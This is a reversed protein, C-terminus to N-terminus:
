RHVGEAIPTPASAPPVTADRGDPRARGAEPARRRSLAARAAGAPGRVERWLAHRVGSRPPDALLGLLALPTTDRHVEIRPLAYRAGPRPTGRATTLALAAAFGARRAEARLRRDHEGYPYALLRPTGLGLRDLVERSRRLDARMGARAAATLHAHRASHSAIEWGADRLTGLQAATLLPLVVTGTRADWANHGGIQDTVVFVVGRAGFRALVPAAATLLSEYADDFTLLVSRPPLPRGDLHELLDAATVFTYGAERVATLQEEFLRPPVSYHALRPDRVDAIAHYTLIRPGAAPAARGRLVRRDFTPVVIRM